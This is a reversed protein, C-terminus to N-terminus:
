CPIGVMESKASECPLPKKEGVPLVEATEESVCRLVNILQQLTHFRCVKRQLLRRLELETILRLVAFPSPIAIGGDRRIRASSTM